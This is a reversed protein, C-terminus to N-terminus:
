LYISCRIACISLTPLKPMILSDGAIEGFKLLIAHSLALHVKFHLKYIMM